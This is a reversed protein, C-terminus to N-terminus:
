FLLAGIKFGCVLTPGRYGYDWGFQDFLTASRPPAGALRPMKLSAGLYFDMLIFGDFLFYTAGVLATGQWSRMTSTRVGPVLQEFELGDEEAYPVLVYDEYTLHYRHYGLGYAFYYNSTNYDAAQNHIKHMIEFGAGQVQTDPNLGVNFERKHREGLYYRPSLVVAHRSLPPRYEADVRLGKIVMLQPVLSLSFHRTSLPQAWAAHAALGLLLGFLYKM